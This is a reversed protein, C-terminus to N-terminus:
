FRSPIPVFRTTMRVIIQEPRLGQEFFYTDPFLFGERKEKDVIALFDASPTAGAGGAFTWDGARRYGRAFFSVDNLGHREQHEVDAFWGGQEPKVRSVQLRETTWVDSVGGNAISARETSADLAWPTTPQAMSPLRGAICFTLLLLFRNTTIM